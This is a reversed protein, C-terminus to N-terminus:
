SIWYPHNHRVWYGGQPESFHLVGSKSHVNIVQAIPVLSSMDQWLLDLAPSTLSPSLLAIRLLCMRKEKVESDSDLEWCIRFYQLIDTWIDLNGLAELSTM